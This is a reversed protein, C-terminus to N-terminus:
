DKDASIGNRGFTFARSGNVPPTKKWIALLAVAFCDLYIAFLVVVELGKFLRHRELTKCLSETQSNVLSALLAVFEIRAPHRRKSLGGCPAGLAFCGCCCCSWVSLVM